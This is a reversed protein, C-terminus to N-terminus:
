GMLGMLGGRIFIGCDRLYQNMRCKTSSMSNAIGSMAAGTAVRVYKPNSIVSGARMARSTPAASMPTPPVESRACM